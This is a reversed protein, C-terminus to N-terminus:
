TCLLNIYLQSDFWWGRGQSKPYREVMMWYNLTTESWITVYESKGLTHSVHNNQSPSCTRNLNTAVKRM